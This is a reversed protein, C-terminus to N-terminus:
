RYSIMGTGDLHGHENHSVVTLGSLGALV